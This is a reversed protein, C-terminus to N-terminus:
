GSVPAASEGALRWFAAWADLGARLRALRFFENPAHFDEDATSFSFFVTDIGLVRSFIDSVPLTGGILVIAPDAGDVERLVNQAVRLGPHDASIVYAPASGRQRSMTVEVGIPIHAEIHREVLDLIEDPVQDPVLRCSIKAFATSPIVTKGGDGQYGGGMGNVEVTPRIWQRELTTYGEEGFLAPAGVERQYSADDFPLAKFRAREEASYSRVRDYFGDVAVSGDSNHLSAILAGLAHLPNAVAGGHRGSHLDKTPGRVVLTLAALGRSGTTISPMDPRWMAGDASVAYEATLMERHEEIFGRLNPSGVEEEGEFMMKLNLPLAGETAFYAEAVKIPVVMPGKDDSVGRGYIREDRIEPVFPPSDWAELPDPPQVDYHGYVLLTPRGPAGLWEAYVVPHGETPIIEVRFPGAARVHAAVWSAAADIDERHAPDTSVSPIRVFTLLDGVIENWHDDFYASISMRTECDDHGGGSLGEFCRREAM